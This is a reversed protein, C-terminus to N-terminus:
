AATSGWARSRSRQRLPASRCPGRRVARGDGSGDVCSHFPTRARAAGGTGPDTPRPTRAAAPPTPTIVRAVGYAPARVQRIANRFSVCGEDTPRILLESISVQPLQVLVLLLTAAVDDPRLPTPPLATGSGEGAAVGVSEVVAVRVGHPGGRRRLNDCLAAMELAIRASALGSAGARLVHSAVPAVVVIDGGGQREMHPLAATAIHLLGRLAPHPQGLRPPASAGDGGDATVDYGDAAVLIDLRGWADVVRRVLARTGARTDFVAPVPLVRGGAERIQAALTDLLASASPPATLAVRAGAAALAQATAAGIASTAGTVLAVRGALAGAADGGQGNVM